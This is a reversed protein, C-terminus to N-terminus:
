KKVPLAPWVRALADAPVPHKPAETGHPDGLVWDVYGVNAAITHPSVVFHEGDESVALERGGNYARIAARLVMGEPPQALKPNDKRLKAIQRRATPVKTANFHDMGSVVNKRWDWFIRPFFNSPTSLRDKPWVWEEEEPDQQAIGVGSPPGYRPQTRQFEALTHDSEHCFMRLFLWALDGAQDVIFKEVDIRPADKGVVKLGKLVKAVTVNALEAGGEFTAKIELDGGTIEPPTLLVSLEENPKTRATGAAFKFEQWRYNGDVQHDRVRYKGSISIEWRVSGISTEQGQVLVKAKLLVSPMAPAPGPYSGPDISLVAGAAPSVIEVTIPVDHDTPKAKATLQAPTQGMPIAAPVAKAAPAPAPAAAPQAPAAAAQPAAPPPPDGLKVQYAGPKDVPLRVRGAGDTTQPSSTTGDSHEVHVRAGAVPAGDSVLRLWVLHDSPPPAKAADAKKTVLPPNIQVYPEGQIVVTGGAQIRVQTQATVTINPGDLVITSGGTTLTIRKAIIERRTDQPAVAPAGQDAVNSAAVKAMRVEHMQGATIADVTGITTGLSRGIVTGHDGGIEAVEERLVVKELDRESRLLFRERGATDDFTLEHFGAGTPSPSTSTRWSSVVNSGQPVPNTQDHVRGVIVPQDPNGEYFAVIVEQGVRPISIMGFGTGAWGEDVRVWASHHDDAFSGGAPPAATAGGDLARDWHFRVRVRGFEDTHIDGPPKPASSPAAGLPAGMSVPGTVVASQLGEVRPWPTREPPRVKSQAFAAAVRVTLSGDIRGDIHTEVVLLRQDVALEPRSADAITLVAGPALDLLNTGLEVRRRDERISQLRREALGYGQHEDSRAQSQDDAVPTDGVPISVDAVASGPAYAYRELRAEGPGPQESHYALPYGPRRFDYDALTVSGSRTEHAVRVDTVFPLPLVPNPANNCPVAARRTEAREPSDDLVLHAIGDGRQDDFFYSIGAEELLREFLELDTEGYQVRLEHRALNAEVVRATLEVNWEALLARVMELATQHQFIRNGRRQGLLWLRPVVRLSYTSLGTTEPELQEMFSVLGSFARTGLPASDVRLTAEAGLLREFDLDADPTVATFAVEFPRSLGEVIDVTRISLGHGAFSPIEIEVRM